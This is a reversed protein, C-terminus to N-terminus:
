WAQPAETIIEVKCDFLCFDLYNLHGLDTFLFCLENEVWM